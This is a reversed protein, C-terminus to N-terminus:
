LLIDIPEWDVFFEHITLKHLTIEFCFTLRKGIWAFEHIRLKPPTSDLCFTLQNGIWDDFIGGIKVEMCIIM